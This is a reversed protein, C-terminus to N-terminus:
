DSYSMFENLKLWYSALKLDHRIKDSRSEIMLSQM